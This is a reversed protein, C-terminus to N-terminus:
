FLLGPRQLLFPTGAIGFRERANSGRVLLVLVELRTQGM